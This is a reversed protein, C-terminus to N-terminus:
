RVAISARGFNTTFERMMATIEWCCHGAGAAGHHPGDVILIKDM